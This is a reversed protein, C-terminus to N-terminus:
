NQHQQDRFESPTIGFHNKFATSFYASTTFGVQFAIDAIPSNETLLLHKAKKLRVKNIYDNVSYGLLSKLKRYLQGRSLGMEQCIENVGFQSNSINKEVLSTFNSVFKKDPSQKTQATNEVPLEHIYHERLKQRNALLMKIRELVLEFSFPKTIYDDIGLKIGKIREEIGKKATIVIIPIHSTRIDNKLAKVIDFGNKQQLMLDITILDPVQDLAKGIGTEINEAQIINFYKGLQKCLYDRIPKEDEIVLITNEKSDTSDEVIPVPEFDEFSISEESFYQQFEGEIIESSNFHAKGNKLHVTFNTGEGPQSEVKIYGHHLEILDKSLALGLGSGSQSFNEGQYFRDFIHKVSEKSMGEGTDEVKILVENALANQEVKIIISGKEHTFKFANSLLNFMVKDLMMPDFWLKINRDDAILKFTIGNQMALKKFSSMIEELFPIIEHEAAKVFMKSSDLKRLDMLQNVLRLLRMSNKRILLLDPKFPAAEKNKLLDEVPAQILTLPTRFEHSINTFFEFKQQTAKEAKQSLELVKDKQESVEKNKNKLEENIEQKDRLSKFIYILSIIAILLTLGFVFLFTRQNKYIEMQINIRDRQRIINDQQDIIKDTQQKIIRVNSSDVVATQLINEKEFFDGTLIKHAVEISKDGGTPYFFTADLVDDTVAQIGGYPGPLADVGLFKKNNINLSNCIEHAGIAMVDNHGFILDFEPINEKLLHESLQNKATDKEWQGNIETVINIDSGQFANLLGRHREVAPSSGRLGWIELINGKGNLVNRIYQGATYGVEYNNGGVYASYLNSSTKRDVVIVPLGNQFIEEIIPTIPSSENPSVILLDIGSAVLEKIQQIQTASNGQADRIELSLDPYFSLERYMEDHMAKRWADNSVCQSFGIKYQKADEEPGCSFLTAM